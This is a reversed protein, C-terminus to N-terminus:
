RAGCTLAIRTTCHTHTHTHTHHRGSVSDSHHCTHAGSHVAASRDQVVQPVKGGQALPPPLLMPLATQSAAKHGTRGCPQVRVQSLQLSLLPLQIPCVGRLVREHHGPLHCCEAFHFSVVAHTHMTHAHTTHTHACTHTCQTHAHTTYLCSTYEVAYM